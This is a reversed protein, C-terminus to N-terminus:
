KRDEKPYIKETRKRLVEEVNAAKLEECIQEAVAGAEEYEGLWLGEARRFLAAVKEEEESLPEKLLEEATPPLFVVAQRHKQLLEKKNQPEALRPYVLVENVRIERGPAGPMDEDIIVPRGAELRYNVGEVGYYLLNIFTEDTTLLTLLTKAEEPYTAWSSVGNIINHMPMAYYMQQPEYTYAPFGTNRNSCSRHILTAYFGGIATGSREHSVYEVYTGYGGFVKRNEELLAFLRRAEEDEYPNVFAVKKEETQKVWFDGVKYYGLYSYVADATLCIPFLMENKERAKEYVEQIVEFYEEFSFETPAEVEYKELITKNLTASYYDGYWGNECIGYVKGDRRMMEWIQEPFAEYLRRGEESETLFEDLPLLLEDRVANDYTMEGEGVAWGTFILDIQKGQEKYDRLTQQYVRYEAETFSPETVFDVVFDYGRELLLNNFANFIGPDRDLMVLRDHYWVVHKEIHSFDELVAQPTATPLPAKTTVAAKPEAEKNCGCFLALVICLLFGFFCKKRM